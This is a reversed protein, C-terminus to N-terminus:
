TRRLLVGPRPLRTTTHLIRPTQYPWSHSFAFYPSLASAVSSDTPMEPLGAAMSSNPRQSLQYARARELTSVLRRGRLNGDPSDEPSSGSKLQSHRAYSPHHDRLGYLHQHCCEHQLDILVPRDDRCM